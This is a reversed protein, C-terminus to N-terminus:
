DPPDAEGRTCTDYYRKREDRSAKRASIIRRNAQRWTFVVAITRGEVEGITFFREEGYDFRGDMESVTVSEWILVALEFDISHKIINQEEKSDDWEYGIQPDEHGSM